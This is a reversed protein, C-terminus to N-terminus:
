EEKLIIYDERYERVFAPVKRAYAFMKEGTGEDVLRQIEEVPRSSVVRCGPSLAVVLRGNRRMVRLPWASCEFPKSDGLICGHGENFWCLAEEDPDDTSYRGSLDVTSYGDVDRFRAYPYRRSLEEALEPEFMPTEWLSARRYSCCFRCKACDSPTLIRSLM